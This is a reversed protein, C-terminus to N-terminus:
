LAGLVGHVVPMVLISTPPQIADFLAAPQGLNESNAVM